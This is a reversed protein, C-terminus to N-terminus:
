SGERCSRASSVHAVEQDSHAHTEGSGGDQRKRRDCERKLVRHAPHDVEGMALEQRDPGIGGVASLVDKVLVHHRSRHDSGHRPQQGAQREIDEHDLPEPLVAVVTKMAVSPTESM